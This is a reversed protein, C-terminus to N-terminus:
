EESEEEQQQQRGERDESEERRYSSGEGRETQILHVTFGRETLSQRLDAHAQETDLRSQQEPTLGRVYINLEKGGAALNVEVEIGNNLTISIRTEGSDLASAKVEALRGGYQSSKEFAEIIKEVQSTVTAEGSGSVGGTDMGQLNIQGGQSGELDSAKQELAGEERDEKRKAAREARVEEKEFHAAKAEIQPSKKAARALAAGEERLPNNSKPLQGKKDHKTLSALVGKGLQKEDTGKEKLENKLDSWLKQAGKPIRGEKARPRPLDPHTTKRMAEHLLKKSKPDLQSLDDADFPTSNSGQQQQPDTPQMQTEDAPHPLKQTIKM